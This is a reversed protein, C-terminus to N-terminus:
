EYFKEEWAFAVWEDKIKDIVMYQDQNENNYIFYQKLKVTVYQPYDSDGWYFTVYELKNNADIRTFRSCMVSSTIIKKFIDFNEETLYAGKYEEIIPIYVRM